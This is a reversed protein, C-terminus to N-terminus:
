RVGSSPREATAPRDDGFPRRAHLLVKRGGALTTAFLYDDGGGQRTPAFHQEVRWPPPSSITTAETACGCG